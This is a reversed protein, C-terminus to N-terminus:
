QFKKLTENFLPHFDEDKFLHVLVLREHNFIKDFTDHTLNSPRIAPKEKKEEKPKEPKKEPEPVPRTVKEKLAYRKLFRMLKEIKMDSEYFEKEYTGDEKRVLVLLTPFKDVNYAKVVDEVGEYVDAFELRDRYESTLARYIYPTEKKNTFLIVKNAILTDSLFKDMDEQSVIKKSFSPMQKKAWSAIANPSGEGQYRHESPQMPKGTYPNIAQAPPELFLVQPLAGKYDDSCVNVKEPDEFDDCDVVSMKFFQKNNSALENVLYELSAANDASSSYFFIGLLYDLTGYNAMFQEHNKFKLVVSEDISCNVTTFVLLAFLCFATLKSNHLKM